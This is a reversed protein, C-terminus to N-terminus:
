HGVVVRGASNTGTGRREVHEVANPLTCCQCIEGHCPSARIERDAGRAQDIPDDQLLPPGDADAQGRRGLREDSSLDDERGASVSARRHKQSRTEARRFIESAKSDVNVHVQGSNALMQSVVREDEQRECCPRTDCEFGPWPGLAEQRPVGLSDACPRVKM